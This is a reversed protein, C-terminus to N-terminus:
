IAARVAAADAHEEFQDVTLPQARRLRGDGPCLKDTAHSIAKRCEGSAAYDARMLWGVISRNPGAGRRTGSGSRQWRFKPPTRFWTAQAASANLEMNKQPKAIFESARMSNENRPGSFSQGPVTVRLVCVCAESPPDFCWRPVGM